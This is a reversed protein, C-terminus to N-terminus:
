SQTRYIQLPFLEISFSLNLAIFPFSSYEQKKRIPFNYFKKWRLEKWNEDKMGFTKSKIWCVIKNRFHSSLKLVPISRRTSGYNCEFSSRKFKYKGVINKIKFKFSNSITNIFDRMCLYNSIFVIWRINNWNIRSM